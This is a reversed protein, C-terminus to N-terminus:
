PTQNRFCWLYQVVASLRLHGATAWLQSTTTALNKINAVGPKGPKGKTRTAQPCWLGASHRGLSSHPSCDCCSGASPWSAPRSNLKYSAPLVVAGPEGTVTILMPPHSASLDMAAAKNQLSMNGLSRWAAQLVDGQQRHWDGPNPKSSTPLVSARHREDGLLVLLVLHSWPPEM